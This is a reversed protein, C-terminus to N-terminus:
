RPPAPLQGSVGAPSVATAAAPGVLELAPLAAILAADVRSEGSGAVARIQPAVRAFAEPDDLHLRDHLTFHAQLHEVYFPSLKAATLVHPASM